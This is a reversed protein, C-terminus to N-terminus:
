SARRVFVPAQEVEPGDTLRRTEGTAIEMLYIDYNGSEDTGDYLLFRGDPSWSHWCEEAGDPTLQRLASGDLAVSFISNNGNRWSCFSITGDTPHWVPPGAHYGHASIAPDDEPYHTLRRPERRDLDMVWIEDLGSRKSRWALRNGDPSLAPDNDAEPDDTLRELERGSADIRYLDTNGDKTSGIVLEAGDGRTTVWSDPVRFETIRRLGSGDSRMEYLHYKRREDDRDSALYLRDDRAHYVWDLAPDRSLNRRDTGDPNMVFIEYDDHEEDLLVNYAVLYGDLGSDPGFGPAPSGGPPACGGWGGLAAAALLALAVRGTGRRKM